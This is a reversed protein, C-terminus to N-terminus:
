LTCFDIYAKSESISNIGIYYFHVSNIQLITSAETAEFTPDFTYQSLHNIEFTFDKENNSKVKYSLDAGAYYDDLAVNLGKIPDIKFSKTSIDQKNVITKDNESYKLNIKLNCVKGESTALVNVIKDQNVNSVVIYPQSLYTTEAKTTTFKYIYSFKESLLFPIEKVDPIMSLVYNIKTQGREYIYYNNLQTTFAVFKKSVQINTLLSDTPDLEYSNLIKAPDSYLHENISDKTGVFLSITSHDYFLALPRGPYNIVTLATVQSPLDFSYFVLRSNQSDAVIITKDTTIIFDSITM